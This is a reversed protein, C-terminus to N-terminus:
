SVKLLPSGMRRGLNQDPKGDTASRKGKPSRIHEYRHASRSNSCERVKGRKMTIVLPPAEHFLPCIVGRILREEVAMNRDSLKASIAM